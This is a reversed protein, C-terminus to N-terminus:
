DVNGGTALTIMPTTAVMDSSYDALDPGPPVLFNM